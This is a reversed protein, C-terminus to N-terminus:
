FKMLIIVNEISIYYSVSVFALFYDVINHQNYGLVGKTWTVWQIKKEM